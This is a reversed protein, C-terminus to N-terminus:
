LWLKVNNMLQGDIILSKKLANIIFLQITFHKQQPRKTSVVRDCKVKKHITQKTGLESDWVKEWMRELKHVVHKASKAANCLGWVLETQYLSVPLLKNM